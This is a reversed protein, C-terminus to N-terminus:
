QFLSAILGILIGVIGFDSDGFTTNQFGLNGLVPILFAPIFSILVGNTFGGIAAGVRGGTANGFVGAGAGTFFHPVLGPIILALSFIGLFFMSILGGVFSFIFGIIVATPAYPYIVPIDLAPKAGPVLKEAIGRFAPVIEALIMRVGVMIISFGAAFTIGEMVGFMIFNQEGAYTAVIDPGAILVLIIFMVIMTLATSILSDRLFSWRDPIQMDETSQDKNGVAKGVAGAAVYGVTGFHGIAIDDGGTVQRVFPQAIAPMLVMIFGLILSGTVVLVVGSLGATGLVASLLAAMFFTHHGTLFIYKMPTFRAFLINAVFGFGMILATETGLTQQALAVIAENNPIVGQIEFRDSIIGGLSDLSGVIVDAGAGLILFGIISKITGSFIKSGTEKQLALGVFVILGVLIAPISLIENMLFEFFAM